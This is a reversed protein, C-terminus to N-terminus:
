LRGASSPPRPTMTVVMSGKTTWRRTPRSLPETRRGAMRRPPSPPRGIFSLRGRWVNEVNEVAAKSNPYRGDNEPTVLVTEICDSIASLLITAVLVTSWLANKESLAWLRARLAPPVPKPLNLADEFAFAVPEGGLLYAENSWGRARLERQELVQQQQKSQAERETLAAERKDAAAERAAM